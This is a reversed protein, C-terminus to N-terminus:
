SVHRTNVVYQSVFKQEWSISTEEDGKVDLTGGDKDQNLFVQLQSSRERIERMSKVGRFAIKADWSLGHVLVTLSSSKWVRPHASMQWMTAFLFLTTLGLLCLPFAFWSWRVDVFIEPSGSGLVNEAYLGNARLADSMAKAVQELTEAIRGTSIWTTIVNTPECSSLGPTNAYRLIPSSSLNTYTLFSPAWNDMAFRTSIASINSVTFSDEQNPPTLIIDQTYIYDTAIGDEVTVTLPDSFKTENTWTSLTRESLIGNSYSAEITRTCWEFVCAHAKPTENRYLSPLDRSAVIIFNSMPASISEFKLNGKWYLADTLVDRLNLIRMILAVDKLRSNDGDSSYGTMLIPNEDSINLFWGCPTRNLDLFQNGEIVDQYEQRWDGPERACGFKLM